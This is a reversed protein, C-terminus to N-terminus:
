VFSGKTRDYFAVHPLWTVTLTSNLDWAGSTLFRGFGQSCCGGSQPHTARTNRTPQPCVRGTYPIAHDPGERQSSPYGIQFLATEPKPRGSNLHRWFPRGFVTSVPCKALHGTDCAPSVPCVLSPDVPLGPVGPGSRRKGIRLLGPGKGGGGICVRQAQGRTVARGRDARDRRPFGHCDLRCDRLVGCTTM